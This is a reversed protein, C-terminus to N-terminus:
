IFNYYNFLNASDSATYIPINLDNGIFGAAGSNGINSIGFSGGVNKWTTGDYYWYGTTGDTQYIMLGTAPSAINNKNAATM